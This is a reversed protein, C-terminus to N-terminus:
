YVKTSKIVSYTVRLLRLYKCPNKEGGRSLKTASKAEPEGDPVCCETFFLNINLVAYKEEAM